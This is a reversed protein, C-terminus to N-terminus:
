IKDPNRIFTPQLNIIRDIAGTEILNNTTIFYKCNDKRLAIILSIIYHSYNFSSRLSVCNKQFLLVNKQGFTNQRLQKQKIISMIKQQHFQKQQHSSPYLQLVFNLRPPFYHYWLQYFEVLHYHFFRSLSFLSFRSNVFHYQLLQQHFDQVSQIQMLAKLLEYFCSQTQELHPPSHPLEIKLLVLANQFLPTKTLQLYHLLM